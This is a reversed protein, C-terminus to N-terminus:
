AGSTFPPAVSNTSLAALFFLCRYVSPVTTNLFLHCVCPSRWAPAAERKQQAQHYERRVALVGDPRLETPRVRIGHSAVLPM